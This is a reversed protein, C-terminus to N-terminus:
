VSYKQVNVAKINYKYLHLFPCDYPSPSARFQRLCVERVDVGSRGPPLQLAPNSQASRQRLFQPTQAVVAAPASESWTLDRGYETKDAFWLIYLTIALTQLLM